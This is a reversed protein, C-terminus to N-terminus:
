FAAKLPLPITVKLKVRDNSMEEVWEIKIQRYPDYLAYAPRILRRLLYADTDRDLSYDFRQRVMVGKLKGDVQGEDGALHLTAKETGLMPVDDLGTPIRYELSYFRKGSNDLLIRLEKTTDKYTSSNAQLIYIGSKTIAQPSEAPTLFNLLAKRYTSPNRAQNDSGGTADFADGYRSGTCGGSDVIDLSSPMFISTNSCNIHGSHLWGFVHGLEHIFMTTPSPPDPNLVAQRSYADAWGAEGYGHIVFAFLDSSEKKSNSLLAYADASLQKNDCQLGVGSENVVKCYDAINKNLTLGTIVEGKLDIVGGSVKLFYAAISQEDEFILKKLENISKDVTKADKMRIQAVTLTLPKKNFFANACNTKVTVAQSQSAIKGSIISFVRYIYNTKPLIYRFDTLKTDTTEFVLRSDRQLVYKSAGPIANWSLFIGTCIEKDRFDSQPKGNLTIDEPYTPPPPSQFILKTNSALILENATASCTTIGLTFFSFVLSLYFNLNSKDFYIFKRM